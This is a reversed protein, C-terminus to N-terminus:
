QSEGSELSYILRGCVAPEAEATSTSLFAWTKVELGLKSAIADLREIL